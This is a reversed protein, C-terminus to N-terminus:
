SNRETDADSPARDPADIQRSAVMEWDDNDAEALAGQGWWGLPASRTEHRAPEFAPRRDISWISVTVALVALGLCCALVLGGILIAM